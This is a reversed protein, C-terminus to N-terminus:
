KLFAWWCYLGLVTWSIICVVYAKWDTARRALGNKDVSGVKEGCSPCKVEDLSLNIFCGPCRKFRYKKQAGSKQKWFGM